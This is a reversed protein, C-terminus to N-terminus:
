VKNVPFVFADNEIQFFIYAPGIAICPRRTYNFLFDITLVFIQALMNPEPWPINNIALGTLNRGPHALSAVLGNEVFQAGKGVAPDVAM